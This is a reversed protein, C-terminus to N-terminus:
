KVAFRGICIKSCFRGKFQSRQTIKNCFECRFFGENTQKSKALGVNLDNLFNLNLDHSNKISLDNESNNLAHSSNNLQRNSEHLKDLCNSDSPSEFFSAYINNSHHSKSSLININEKSCNQNFYSFDDIHNILNFSESIDPKSLSFTAANLM